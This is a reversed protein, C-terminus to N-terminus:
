VLADYLNDIPKQIGHPYVSRRQWNSEGAHLFLSLRGNATASQNIMADNMGISLEHNHYLLPGGFDEEGVMDFGVTFLPWRAHLGIADSIVAKMENHDMLRLTQIITRMGYFDNSNAKV